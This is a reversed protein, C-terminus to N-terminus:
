DIEPRPLIPSISRSNGIDALCRAKSRSYAKPCDQRGCAKCNPKNRTRDHLRPPVVSGGGDRTLGNTPNIIIPTLASAIRNPPAQQSIPLNFQNASSTAAQYSPYRVLPTMNSSISTEAMLTTANEEHVDDETESGSSEHDEYGNLPVAVGLSDLFLSPEEIRQSMEFAM